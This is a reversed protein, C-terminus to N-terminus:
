REGLTFAGDLLRAALLAQDPYAEGCLLDLTLSDAYRRWVPHDVRFARGSGLEVCYEQVERGHACYLTRLLAVYEEPTLGADTRELREDLLWALHYAALRLMALLLQGDTLRFQVAQWKLLPRGFSRKRRADRAITEVAGIGNAIQVLTALGRWAAWLPRAADWETRRVVPTELLTLTAMGTDRLGVAPQPEVRCHADRDVAVLGPAAPDRDAAVATVVFHRAAVALLVNCKRGSVVPGAPGVRVCSEGLDAPAAPGASDTEQDALAVVSTGRAVAEAVAPPLFPRLVNQTLVASALGADERGLTDLTVALDMWGRWCGAPDPHLLALLGARGLAGFAEADLCGARYWGRQRPRVVEAVFERVSAQLRSLEDGLGPEFLVVGDSTAGRRDPRSATM